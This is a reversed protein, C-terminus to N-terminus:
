IELIFGGKEKIVQLFFLASTVKKNLINHSNRQQYSSVNEQSSSEQISIYM